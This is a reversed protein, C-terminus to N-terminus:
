NTFNKNMAKIKIELKKADTSAKQAASLSKKAINYLELIAANDAQSKTRNAADLLSSIEKLKIDIGAGADYALSRAKDVIKEAKGEAGVGAEGVQRSAKTGSVQRRRWEKGYVDALAKARSGKITEEGHLAAENLAEAERKKLVDMELLAVKEQVKKIKRATEKKAEEVEHQAQYTARKEANLKNLASETEAAMMLANTVADRNKSDEEEAADVEKQKAKRQKRINENYKITAQYDKKYEALGIDYSDADKIQSPLEDLINNNKEIFNDLEAIKETIAKLKKEYQPLQTIRADSLHGGTGPQMIRKIANEIEKKEKHLGEYDASEIIAENRQFLALRAKYEEPTLGEDKLSINNLSNLEETLKALKKGSADAKTQANKIKAEEQAKVQEENLELLKEQYEIEDIYGLIRQRHLREKEAAFKADDGKATLTQQFLIKQTEADILKLQTRYENSQAELAEQFENAADNRKKDSFAIQLALNAESLKKVAEEVTSTLERAKDAAEKEAEATGFFSVKAKDLAWSIGEWAFQIAALFVTSKAFLKVGETLGKLTFTGNRWQSVVEQMVGVVSTQAGIMKAGSLQTERGMLTINKRVATLQRDIAQIQDQTLDGRQREKLLKSYLQTLEQYTLGTTKLVAQHNQESKIARENAKAVKNVWAEAYNSIQQETQDFTKQMVGLSLGMKDQEQIAKEYGIESVKKNLQQSSISLKEVAAKQSTLAKEYGEGKVILDELAKKKEAYGQANEDLAALEQRYSATLKETQKELQTYMENLAVLEDQMAKYGAEYEEKLPNNPEKPGNPNWTGQGLPIRKPMKELKQEIRDLDKEVNSSDSKFTIKIEPEAM